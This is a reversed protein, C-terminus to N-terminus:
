KLLNLASGLNILPKKTDEAIRSCATNVWCDIFPFNETEQLNINDIIFLFVEKNEKELKKKLILATKISNQGPKTSILLGIKRGQIFKAMSVKEHIKIKELDKICLVGTKGSLPNYYFVDKENEYLLATPHFTGDGLFFFAEANNKVKFNDCGLIQGPNRSRGNFLTVKKGQKELEKKLKYLQTLFQVSSCLILKKPLSRILEEPLVIKGVYETPIFLSKM